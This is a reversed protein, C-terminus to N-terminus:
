SKTNALYEKTEKEKRAKMSEEQEGRTVGGM